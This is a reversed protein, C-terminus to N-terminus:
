CRARQSKEGWNSAVIVQFQEFTPTRRIPKDRKAYKLHQAPWVVIIRDRVALDFVDKLVRFTFTGRRQASNSVRWGCISM